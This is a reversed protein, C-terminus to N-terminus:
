MAPVNIGQANRGSELPYRTHGSSICPGTVFWEYRVVQPHSRAPKLVVNRLVIALFKPIQAQKIWFIMLINLSDPSIERHLCVKFAQSRQNSLSM